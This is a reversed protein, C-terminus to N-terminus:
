GWSIRRPTAATRWCGASANAPFGGTRAWSPPMKAAAADLLARSALQSLVQDFVGYKAAEAATLQPGFQQRLRRLEAVFARKVQRSSVEVDGVGIVAQTEPSRRLMDAIGWAGFAVILIGFLIKALLSTFLRGVSNSMATFSGPM